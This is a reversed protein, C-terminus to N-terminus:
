VIVVCYAGVRRRKSTTGSAEGAVGVGGEVVDLGMGAVVLLVFM